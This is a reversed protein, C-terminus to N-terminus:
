PWLEAEVESWPVGADPDEDAEALRERLVEVHWGPVPGPRLGDLVPRSTESRDEM